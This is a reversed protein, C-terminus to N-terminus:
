QGWNEPSLLPDLAVLPADLLADRLEAALHHGRAQDVRLLRRALRAVAEGGGLDVEHEAM